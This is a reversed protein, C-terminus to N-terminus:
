SGAAIGSVIPCRITMSAVRFYYNFVSARLDRLSIPLRSTFIKMSFIEWFVFIHYLAM